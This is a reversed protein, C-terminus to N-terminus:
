KLWLKKVIMVTMIMALLHGLLFSSIWVFAFIQSSLYAVMLTIPSMLSLLFLIHVLWKTMKKTSFLRIYISAIMMVALLSMFLDIHVQLLLSDILIPEIFEEENGYLTAFIDQFEFGVVYGHLIIDLIFYFFLAICVGVILNKLLTSYALDKTVLFKM